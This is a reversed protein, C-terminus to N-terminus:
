TQTVTTVNVGGKSRVGIVREFTIYPQQGPTPNVQGPPQYLPNVFTIDVKVACVNTWDPALMSATPIYTDAPCGNGMNNSTETNPGVSTPPTSSGASTTNVAFQFALNVV